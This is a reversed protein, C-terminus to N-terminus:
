PLFEQLRAGGGRASEPRDSASPPRTKTAWDSPEPGLEIELRGGGHLQNGTIFGHDLPKGNFRASQVYQPKSGAADAGIGSEAHGTTVLEFDNGGFRLNAAGFAPANVLFLNQGAVPFLGLSAWVYWSSLAGSDDNGPLGGRGTGFQYALAAHVIEATRDPRGAYHYAWPAEMDPENNLGEFRNLDQGIAFEPGFPPVGLQTVPEAGYGFFRDLIATFEKDGGALEIRSAMDHLLRFSYNWRGGEYFSSDRLLGDQGFANIWLRAKTELEDALRHDGLGRAIIATCWYGSALDLTHSVPHVIGRVAFDEGYGRRLDDQMHVLAWDWELGELGLQYGDALVTHALASAQRFFRDSGRAMRYGIPLNGEEEAIRVLSEAMAAGKAPDLATLLPFQTKYMDWMTAIDFVFPGKSPWFPSEDEAFCPKILSHYLSTAFVTRREPTGGDVEVQSFYGNWAEHTQARVREFGHEFDGPLSQELNRRAQDTGRMSFGMRLEVTTGARAPGMFMLGFPRLTTRRIYDFDLRTGGDVRRRDYWVLQRWAKPTDSDIYVSLPIGEMVVTGQACGQGLSELGARLPVTTGHEIALGGYSFDLVVRASSAEPFTYRHVATKEGVTLECRIGNELTAAYYGPEAIEDRLKWRTGLIDLPEIMPTVRFYNYYKRIAGTGSQQFHTFGSALYDDYVPAPVGETSIGYRGYGTPYAGSCACASVMGLPHCAGPHTNGVQAKPWWWTAALGQAAPLDAPETGIFPDVSDLIRSLNSAM